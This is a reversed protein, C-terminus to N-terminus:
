DPFSQALQNIEVPTLKRNYIRVDDVIGKFFRSSGSYAGASSTFGPTVFLDLSPIRLESVLRGNIWLGVANGRKYTAAIHYLVKEEAPADVSYWKEDKLKIGFSIHGSALFILQFEGNGPGKYLIHQQGYRNDAAEIDSVEAWVSITFSSVSSAFVSDPYVISDQGTFRFHRGRPNEECVPSGQIIGGNGNETSDVVLRGQGCNEFSWHMVMGDSLTESAFVPWEVVASFILLFLLSVLVARKRKM